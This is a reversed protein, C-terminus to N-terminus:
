DDHVLRGPHYRCCGLTNDDVVFRVGCAVCTRQRQRRWERPVQACPKTRHRTFEKQKLWRAAFLGKWNLPEEPLGGHEAACRLGQQLMRCYEEAEKLQGSIEVAAPSDVPVVSLRGKLRGIEEKAFPINVQPPVRACDETVMPHLVGLPSGRLRRPIELKKPLRIRRLDIGPNSVVKAYMVPFEGRCLALWLEPIEALRHLRACCRGVKTLDRCPLFSLVVLHVESPISLFAARAVECPLLGKM